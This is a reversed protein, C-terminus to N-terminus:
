EEAPYGGGESSCAEARAFSDPAPSTQSFSSHLNRHARRPTLAPLTDEADRSVVRRLLRIELESVRCSLKFRPLFCTFKARM